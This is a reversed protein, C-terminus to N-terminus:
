RGSNDETAFQLAEQILSEWQTEDLTAIQVWERFTRGNPAFPLGTEAEILSKVRAAPLKIILNGTERHLSAFFKGKARLCPYGMMTGKEAMGQILLPEALSWFIDAKKESEM